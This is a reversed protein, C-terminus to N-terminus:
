TNTYNPKRKELFAAMGERVDSTQSTLILEVRFPPDQTGNTPYRDSKPAVTVACVLLEMNFAM